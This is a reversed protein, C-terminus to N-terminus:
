LIEPNQDAWEQCAEYEARIPKRKGALVQDCYFKIESHKQCLKTLEEVQPPTLKKYAQLKGGFYAILLPPVILFFLVAKELEEYYKTDSVTAYVIILLGCCFLALLGIFVLTYKGRNKFINVPPPRLIDIKM